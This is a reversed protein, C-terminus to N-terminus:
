NDVRNYLHWLPEVLHNPSTPAPVFHFQVQKGNNLTLQLTELNSARVGGSAPVVTYAFAQEDVNQLAKILKNLEQRDSINLEGFTAMKIMQPTLKLARQRTEEAQHKSLQNLAVKFRPGYWIDTYRPNFAFYETSATKGVNPKFHIELADVGNGVRINSTSTANALAVIFHNILISDSVILSARPENPIYGMHIGTIEIRDINTKNITKLRDRTIKDAFITHDASKDTPMNDIRREIFILLCLSVIGTGFVLFLSSSKFKMENQIPLREAHLAKWILAEGM